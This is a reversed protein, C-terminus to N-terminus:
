LIIISLGGGDFHVALNGSFTSGLFSVGYSSGVYMGGGARARNGIFSTNTFTITKFTFPHEYIYGVQVGGGSGMANNNEVFTVNLLNLSLRNIYLGGGINGKFSTSSISCYCQEKVKFPGSDAYLGGGRDAYGDSFSSNHIQICFLLIYTTTDRSKTMIRMNGGDQTGSNNSFISSTIYVSVNLTQYGHMDINLGGSYGGGGHCNSFYSDLVELKTEGEIDLYVNSCNEDGKGEVVKCNQDFKSNKLIISEFCNLAVLGSGQSYSIHVNDVIVTRINYLGFASPPALSPHSFNHVGSIVGCRLIELCRLSINHANEIGFQMTYNCWISAQM